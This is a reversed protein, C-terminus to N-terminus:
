LTKTKKERREGMSINKWAIFVARNRLIRRRLLDTLMQSILAWIRAICANSALKVCVFARHPEHHHASVGPCNLLAWLLCFYGAKKGLCLLTAQEPSWVTFTVQPRTTTIIAIYGQLHGRLSSAFPFCPFQPLCLSIHCNLSQFITHYHYRESFYSKYLEQQLEPIYVTRIIEILSSIFFSFHM